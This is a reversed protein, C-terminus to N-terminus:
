STPADLSVGCRRWPTFNEAREPRTSAKIALWLVYVTLDGDGSGSGSGSKADVPM